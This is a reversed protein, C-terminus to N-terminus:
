SNAPGKPCPLLIMEILDGAAGAAELGVGCSRATAGAADEVGGDTTGGGMLEANITTAAGAKVKIIPGIPMCAIIEDAATAAELAVAIVLDTIAATKVVQKSNTGDLKLTDGRAFAAGAKFSVPKWGIFNENAM